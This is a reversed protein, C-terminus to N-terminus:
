VRELFQRNIDLKGSDRQNQIVKNFFESSM